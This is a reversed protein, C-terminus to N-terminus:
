RQDPMAGQKQAISILFMPPIGHTRCDCKGSFIEVKSPSQIQFAVKSLLNDNSRLIEWEGKPHSGRQIVM